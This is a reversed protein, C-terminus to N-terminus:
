KVGQSAFQFPLIARSLRNALRFVLRDALERMLTYWPLHCAFTAMDCALKLRFTVPLSGNGDTILPYGLSALAGKGLRELIAIQDPQLERRFTGVSESNIKRLAGKKWPYEREPIGESNGHGRAVAQEYPLELFDLIGGFESEPNNVIDEYRAFYLNNEGSNRAEDILRQYYLWVMFSTYLGAHMWPTKTLSLAVDRGDRYLVLIKADPFLQRIRHLHGTHEPTKEGFCTVEKNPFNRVYQRAIEDFFARGDEDTRIRSTPEPLNVHLDDNLRKIHRAQKKRSHGLFSFFYKTEPPIAIRSHRNLAQQVMTTGSRPCGVVFFKNM